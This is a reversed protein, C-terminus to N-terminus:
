RAHLLANLAAAADNDLDEFRLSIRFGEMGICACCVVSVRTQLHVPNGKIFANVSVLGREGDRVSRGLLLGVGTNSIQIAKGELQTSDGLRLRAPWRMAKVRAAAEVNPGTASFFSEM